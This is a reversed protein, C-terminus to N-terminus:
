IMFAWINSIITDIFVYMFETIFLNILDNVSYDDNRQPQIFLHNLIKSHFLIIEYLSILIKPQDRIDLKLKTIAPMWLTHLWDSDIFRRKNSQGQGSIRSNMSFWNVPFPVSIIGAEYGPRDVCVISEFCSYQMRKLMITRRIICLIQWNWMPWRIVNKLLISDLGANRCWLLFSARFLTIRLKRWQFMEFSIKCEWRPCILQFTDLGLREEIKVPM